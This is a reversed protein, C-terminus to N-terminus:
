CHRRRSGAIPARRGVDNVCRMGADAYLEERLKEATDRNVGYTLAEEGALDTM